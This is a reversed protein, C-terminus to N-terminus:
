PTGAVEVLLKLAEVDARETAFQACSGGDLTPLLALERGGVKVDM